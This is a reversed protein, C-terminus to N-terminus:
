AAARERTSEHERVLEAVCGAAIPRSVYFGQAMDCGIEILSSLTAEGEGEAVSKLGLKRALHVVIEVIVKCGSNNMMPMVFSRDIKLESFPMKQLQVLSSYGTGFDDISLKFGRLRLRTLVDMMQVAERM